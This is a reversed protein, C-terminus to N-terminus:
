DRNEQDRRMKEMLLPLSAVGAAGASITGSRSKKPDFKAFESRVQSPKFVMFHETGPEVNPMNPFTKKADIVIGDFGLDEYVKRIVEPQAYGTHDQANMLEESNRLAEDLRSARIEGDALVEGIEALVGDANFGYDKAQSKLSKVLKNTLKSESVFEGDKDYKPTFDLFTENKVGLRLPNKMKVRLPYVTGIQESKAATTGYLQKSALEYLDADEPLKGEDRLAQLEDLKRSFKGSPDPGSRSAYNMSADEPSSTIYISKGFRGEVSGMAPNFKEIDSFSGHFGKQKFGMEEARQLRSALDMALESGAKTVKPAVKEVTGAVMPLTLGAALKGPILNSPDLAAGMALGGIKDPVNAAPRHDALAKWIDSGIKAQPMKNELMWKFLDEGSATSPAKPQLQEKMAQVAEWLSKGETQAQALALGANSLKVLPNNEPDFPTSDGVLGKKKLDEISAM